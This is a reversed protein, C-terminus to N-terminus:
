NDPKMNVISQMVSCKNKKLQRFDLVISLVKLVQLQTFSPILVFSSM